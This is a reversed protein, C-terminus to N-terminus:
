VELNGTGRDYLVSTFKELASFEDKYSRVNPHEFLYERKVAVKAVIRTIVRTASPGAGVTCAFVLDCKWSPNNKSGQTKWNSTITTVRWPVKRWCISFKSMWIRRVSCRDGFVTRNSTYRLKAWLNDHSLVRRTLKQLNPQKSMTASKTYFSRLYVEFKMKKNAQIRRKRLAPCTDGFLTWWM